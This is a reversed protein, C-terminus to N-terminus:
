CSAMIKERALVFSFVNTITRKYKLKRCYLKIVVIVAKPLIKADLRKILHGLYFFDSSCTVRLFQRFLIFVNYNSYGKEVGARRMGISKALRISLKNELDIAAELSLSETGDNWKRKLRLEVESRDPDDSNIYSLFNFKNSVTLFCHGCKRM